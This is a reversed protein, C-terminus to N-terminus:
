CIQPWKLRLKTNVDTEDLDGEEGVIQGSWRRNGM